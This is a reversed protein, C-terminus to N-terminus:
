PAAKKRLSGLLGDFDGVAADVSKEPGVLKFFLAGDPGEVIAAYLEHHSRAAEEEEGM